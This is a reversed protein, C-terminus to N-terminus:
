VYNLVINLLSFVIWCPILLVINTFISTHLLFTPETIEAKFDKTVANWQNFILDQKVMM